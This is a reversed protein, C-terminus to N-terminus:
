GGNIPASTDKRTGMRQHSSPYPYRYIPASIFRGVMTFYWVPSFSSCVGHLSVMNGLIDTIMTSLLTLRVVLNKRKWDM